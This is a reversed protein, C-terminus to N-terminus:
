SLDYGVARAANRLMSLMAPDRLARHYLPHDPLVRRADAHENLAVAPQNAHMSSPYYLMEAIPLYEKRCRSIHMFATSIEGPFSTLM